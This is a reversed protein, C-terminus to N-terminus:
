DHFSSFVIGPMGRPAVAPEDLLATGNQGARWAPLRESNHKDASKVSKASHHTRVDEDYSDVRAGSTGDKKRCIQSIQAIQPDSSEVILTM